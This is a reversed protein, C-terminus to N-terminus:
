LHIHCPFFIDVTVYMFLFLSCVIVLYCDGYWANLAIEPWSIRRSSSICITAALDFNRRCSSKSIKVEDQIVEFLIIIFSTLVSHGLVSLEITDYFCPVGSRDFEPLKQYERKEQM